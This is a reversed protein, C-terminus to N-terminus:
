KVADAKRGIEEVLKQAKDCPNFYSVGDKLGGECKNCNEVHRFYPETLKTLQSETM